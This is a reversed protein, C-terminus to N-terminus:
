GRLRQECQTCRHIMAEGNFALHGGLTQLRMMTPYQAENAVSTFAQNVEWVTVPHPLQNIDELVRDLVKRSLNAERALQAAFAQPSGPVEMTRTAALKVLYDDLQSLVLGAAEEMSAIVEDVTRGKLTIRGLREETTQGNTCVLREAYVGVSPAKSQFPHSLIRIGAETIDGVVANYGPYGEKTFDVQHDATTADLHFRQEDTILRRITDTPKLVKTVVDAVRHLPLMTQTPQHVAIIEEDLSEVVANADRHRDFEYRLLTARFNPTLSEYFTAPIKFFKAMAKNAAQDLTFSRVSGNTVSLTTADDNVEFNSLKATVTGEARKALHEPLQSVLLQM